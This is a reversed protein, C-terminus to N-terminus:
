SLTDEIYQERKLKLIKEQKDKDLDSFFEGLEQKIFFEKIKPKLYYRKDIKDCYVKLIGPNKENKNFPGNEGNLATSYYGRHLTLNFQEGFLVTIIFKLIDVYRVGKEGSWFIFLLLGYVKSKKKKKLVELPINLIDGAYISNM